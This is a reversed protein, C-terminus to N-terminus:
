MSKGKEKGCIRKKYEKSETIDCKTFTKSL